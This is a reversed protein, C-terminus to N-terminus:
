KASLRTITGHSEGGETVDGGYPQESYTRYAALYSSKSETRSPGM